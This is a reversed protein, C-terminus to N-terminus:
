TGPVSAKKYDLTGKEISNFHEVREKLLEFYSIFTENFIQKATKPIVELEDEYWQM